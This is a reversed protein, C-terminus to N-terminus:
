LGKLKSYTERTAVIVHEVVGDVRHPNASQVYEDSTMMDIFAARSPYRVLAVFDWVNNQAVGLAVAEAKGAWVITGGRAKIMPATAASYRLYADWGSGEGSSAKEKLRVLNLMLVPADDPLAELDKVNLDEIAM